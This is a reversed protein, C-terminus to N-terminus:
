KGSIGSSNGVAAAIKKVLPLKGIAKVVKLQAISRGIVNRWLVIFLRAIIYLPIYAALGCVFSGMVITNNFKTFAVFPINLLSAFAPKLSEQTLILFGVDDFVPDLLGTLLAGLVISLSFATRQIRMFFILVFLVYWFLNDKPMFGLLMGLSFAHAILGPENNSSLSQILKVLPKLM